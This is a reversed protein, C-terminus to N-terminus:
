HNATITVRSLNHGTLDRGCRGCFEGANAPRTGQYIAAADGWSTLAHHTEPHICTWCAVDQGITAWAKGRGAGNTKTELTVRTAAAKAPSENISTTAEETTATHM